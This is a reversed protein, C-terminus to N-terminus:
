AGGAYVTVAKCRCNIRLEPPLSPDGPFRCKVGNGFDFLGGARVQVGDMERHAFRVKEDERTVWETVAVHGTRALADRVVAQGAAVAGAAETDAVAKARKAAGPGVLAREAAADAAAAGALRRRFAWRLAARLAKVAGAVVARVVGQEILTLAVGRAADAIRQPVDAARRGTSLRFLGWETAAGAVAARTLVRDLVPTLAAEWEAPNVAALSLEAPSGHATGALAARLAAAARAGLAGFERTLEARFDDDADAQAIGVAEAAKLVARSGPAPLPGRRAKGAAGRKAGAPPTRKADTGDDDVVDVWGSPTLARDGDRVPALGRRQRINNISRIGRDYDGYEKNLEMEPDTPLVPEQYVVLDKEGPAFYPPVYCTMVQSGSETRPNYVNRCTHHDAVGSSAYNVGEIEGLTIPNLNWGQTMRNRILVGSEKFAMERPATTIQKVDKILADLILPEDFRTVGRYQRRVAGIIQQRQEATLVMQDGGVGAFEPPKGVMIALGPNIGNELSMRQAMEFAFDTMVTRANAQLPALASFPDSPDPALFPVIQKTPVKIPEGTGPLTIQYYAFLKEPKHVPQIWHTPVHWIQDAGAEDQYMWWYGFGTLEISAATAYMLHHRVMLPNPNALARMIRHDPLLELRGTMDHLHKPILDVSKVGFGRRPRTGAPLLRAVRVPQAALRNAISHIIAYPYGQYYGYQDAHHAGTQTYRGWTAGTVAGPNSAMAGGLGGGGGGSAAARADLRASETFGSARDLAATILSV